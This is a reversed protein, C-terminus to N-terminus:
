SDDLVEIAGDYVKAVLQAAAGGPIAQNSQVCETVQIGILDMSENFVPAGAPGCPEKSDYHFSEATSDKIEVWKLASKPDNEVPQHLILAITGRRPCDNRFTLPRVEAPLPSKFSLLILPGERIFRISPDFAHEFGPIHFLARAHAAADIQQLAPAATIALNGELAVGMGVAKKGLSITFVASLRAFILEFDLTSDLVAPQLPEQYAATKSVFLRM